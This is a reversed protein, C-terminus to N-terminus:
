KSKHRASVSKAGSAVQLKYQNPSLGMFSRFTKNFHAFSDFGVALAAETVNYGGEHM